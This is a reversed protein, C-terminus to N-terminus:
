KGEDPPQWLKDTVILTQVTESFAQGGRTWAVTAEVHGLYDAGKLYEFKKPGKGKPWPVLHSTPIPVDVRKVRYAWSFRDYEGEFQGQRRKEYLEPQMELDAVLRELLFRAHTYDQAQGRTRVAEQITSHVAFSGLGLLVMAVAAEVLIYGDRRV